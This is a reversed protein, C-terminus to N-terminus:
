YLKIYFVNREHEKIDQIVNYGIGPNLRALFWYRKKNGEVRIYEVGKSILWKRYEIFSQLTTMKSKKLRFCVVNNFGNDIQLLYLIGGIEVVLDDKEAVVDAEKPKSLSNWYEIDTMYYFKTSVFFPVIGNFYLGLLLSLIHYSSKSYDYRYLGRNFPSM